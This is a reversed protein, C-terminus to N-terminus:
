SNLTDVWLESADDTILEKPIGFDNTFEILSKGAKHRSPILIARTDKGETYVNACANGLKLKVKSFLTDCYWIGNFRPCHFNLHNVPLSLMMPNIANRVGHQTTVQLTKKATDSGTNWKRSLEEPTIKSHCDM